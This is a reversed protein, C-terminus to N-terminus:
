TVAASISALQYTFLNIWYVYASQETCVKIARVSKCIPNTVVSLQNTPTYPIEPVVRILNHRNKSSFLPMRLDRQSLHLEDNRAFRRCVQLTLNAFWPTNWLIESSGEMCQCSVMISPERYSREKGHNVSPEKHFLKLSYSFM